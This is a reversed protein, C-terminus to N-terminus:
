LGLMICHHGISGIIHMCSHYTNGHTNDFCLSETLYGYYYMIIVSTFTIVALIKLINNTSSLYYFGVLFVSLIAIQDIWFITTYKNNTAHLIVSSLTLAIFVSSYMFAGRIIGHLANTLFILSSIHKM